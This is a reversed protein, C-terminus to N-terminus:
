RVLLLDLVETAVEYCVGFTYRFEETKGECSKNNMMERYKELLFIPEHGPCSALFDRLEGLAWRRFSTNTLTTEKMKKVGSYRPRAYWGSDYLEDIVALAECMMM